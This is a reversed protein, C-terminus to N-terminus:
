ESRSDRVFFAVEVRRDLAGRNTAREEGFFNLLVRTPEVGSELLYQQAAKARTKSLSLNATRDGSADAHGTCVVRLQPYATMFEMVENLQLQATLTLRSSGENFRIDFAQPLNLPALEPDQDPHTRRPTWGDRALTSVNGGADVRPVLGSRTGGSELASIRREQAEMLALIRSMMEMLDNQVAGNEGQAPWASEDPRDLLSMTEINFDVEIPTLPADLDVNMWEEFTTAPLSQEVTGIKQLLGRNVFRGLEVGAQLLIEQVRQEVLVYLREEFGRSETTRMRDVDRFDLEEFDIVLALVEPSFGKFVSQEEFHRIRMLDSVIRELEKVVQKPSSEWGIEGEGVVMVGRLHIGLADVALDRLRELEPDPATSYYNVVLTGEKSGQKVTSIGGQAWVGSSWEICPFWGSALWTCVLLRCALRLKRMSGNHAIM